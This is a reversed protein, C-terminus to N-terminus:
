VRSLESAPTRDSPSIPHVSSHPCNPETRNMQGLVFFSQVPPRARKGASGVHIPLRKPRLLDPVEVIAAHVWRSLICVCVCVCVLVQSQSCDRRGSIYSCDACQPNLQKTPPDSVRLYRQRPPRSNMITCNAINNESLRQKSQESTNALTLLVALDNSVQMSVYAMFLSMSMAVHVHRFFTQRV